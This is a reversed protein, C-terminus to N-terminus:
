HFLFRTGVEECSRPIAEKRKTKLEKKKKENERLQRLKEMKETRSIDDM